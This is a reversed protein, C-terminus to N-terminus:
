PEGLSIHDLAATINDLTANRLSTTNPSNSISSTAPLNHSPEEDQLPEKMTEIRSDLTAKDAMIARLEKDM